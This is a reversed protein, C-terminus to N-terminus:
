VASPLSEPVPERGRARKRRETFLTSLAGVLVVATPIAISPRMAAVFAGAFIAHFLQQLQDAVAPPIGAPLQIGGNQGPGVELGAQGARSFGELFRQRFAEPVQGAAAQARESLQAALQAQLIAGVVSSGIVAGLQRFSNYVGSAAGAMESAINRMAVTAMPSFVLGMGLGAVLFPGLFTWPSSSPTAVVDILAMGAAFILSGSFLLYKGGIKDALRGAAPAVFMSILSMPAIALGADFASLGLVSQLYIVIPLFLGLMGFAVAVAVWNMLAFNRNRFLTLPMLPERQGREWLVFLALLVVGAGLLEPVTLPGWMRGWNFRQGEILGFVIAFLGATALAVGGFDLAHRRGPRLDPVLLFTAALSVAGIPVNIFFIARWGFATVLYGGLTPGAVTAVGAVGGWVGFAAGRRDPPFISTLIALTQPTLLAGGLGQVVRALQLHTIDPALGCYASAATFIVLGAAFMNRQGYFDGLRGATILLVAYVLIYGNLVWLIQDLSAHLSDLINPVAINVVTTDLLIMFFGTCLVLLVVWPNNTQHRAM